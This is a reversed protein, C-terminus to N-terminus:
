EKDTFSHKLLYSCHENEKLVSLIEEYSRVNNADSIAQIINEPSRPILRDKKPSRSTISETLDWGSSDEMLNKQVPKVQKCPCTKETFLSPRSSQGQVSLHKQFTPLGNLLHLSMNLNDKTSSYGKFDAWHYIQMLVMEEKGEQKPSLEVLQRMEMEVLRSDKRAEESASISEILLYINKPDIESRCQCPRYLTISFQCERGYSLMSYPKTKMSGVFENDRVKSDVRFESINNNWDGLQAYKEALDLSNLAGKVLLSM